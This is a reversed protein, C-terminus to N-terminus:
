LVVLKSVWKTQMVGPRNPGILRAPFGHDIHLTEGNAELAILTDPERAHLRNLESARYLGSDQLSDVRVTADEPAGALDLLDAVRVGRWRASASWGEVCAIPLNAAHQPLAHLDDLSLALPIAVDGEVSLRWGPDRATDLVRASFASKNVPFGQPGVGPRRPALLGLRSLPKFTQGVTSVTILGTAAVIVGIFGRRTLGGGIEDGGEIRSRSLARRTVTAKAGVHIVLAGITIWAAWYHGAPFFFRWPYWLAINAVGTFLLFVSGAVLPVLSVREVLHALDELVPWTWLRPYVTWLKALLLPVSALGAAVHVGQTVRYLWSPDPPWVFWSPPDQILHSLVGTLFCISFSVGLAIGLIAALRESHLRSTFAGEKLPGMRMRDPLKPMRM